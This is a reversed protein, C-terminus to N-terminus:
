FPVASTLVRRTQINDDTKNLPRRGAKALSKAHRASTTPPSCSRRLGLGGISEAGTPADGPSANALSAKHCQGDIVRLKLSLCGPATVWYVAASFRPPGILRARQAGKFSLAACAPDMAGFPSERAVRPSVSLAWGRRNRLKTPRALGAPACASNAAERAAAAALCVPATRVIHLCHRLCRGPRVYVVLPAHPGRISYQHREAYRLRVPNFGLSAQSISHFPYKIILRM